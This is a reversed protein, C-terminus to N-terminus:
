WVQTSRFPATIASTEGSKANPMEQTARTAREPQQFGLRERRPKVTLFDTKRRTNCAPCPDFREIPQILNHIEIPQLARLIGRVSAIWVRWHWNPRLQWRRQM